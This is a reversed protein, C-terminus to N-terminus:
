IYQDIDVSLRDKRTRGTEGAFIFKGSGRVSVVDGERLEKGSRAANLGNVFVRGEKILAQAKERPMNYCRAIVADLRSSSVNLSRRETRPSLNEPLAAGREVHVNTRRVTVLNDAIYAAIDEHVFAACEGDKVILDGIKSRELGLGLISGLFDRHTLKEAFKENVPRILLMEIPFPQEYGCLQESGFRVMCREAGPIGGFAEPGAYSLEQKMAAFIGLQAMDLFDTFTYRSEAYAREALERLRKEM